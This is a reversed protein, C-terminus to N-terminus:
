SATGLWDLEYIWQHVLLGLPPVFALMNWFTAVFAAAVIVAKIQASRGFEIQWREAPITPRAAM